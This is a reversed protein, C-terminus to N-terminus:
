DRGLIVPQKRVFVRSIDAGIAYLCPVLVLTLPTAFLIGYGMVLALPSMYIDSGGVGYTLPLLGAVTTISTLVIARLRDSTGRAILDTISKNSSGRRLNNIHSVLVLSDNVVVGSMGIVGMMGLFSPQEGHLMFAIIVGILGFPVAFLVIFPQTFSKFLLVLLFYIGVAALVFGTAINMIATRSEEAEGGTLLKASSYQSTSDSGRGFRSIVLNTAELSTIIDQDLDATITTTREGNYHRFALLGQGTHLKAVAGLKVLRGQNNPISLNKLMAENRRAAQSLQVRIDVDEDDFRVSSVVEGDYAVRVNRAVDAVTLGFRALKEYMIRIEIQDKGIDDNSDIDKVGNITALYSKVEETFRKREDDDHGVVRLTIPKGVDPGGTDVEFVVNEIGDVQEISERLSEIIQDANRERSSYPTLSVGIFGSNETTGWETRGVYGMYSELEYDPLGAVIKEVEEIRDVTAELSSGRPLEVNLYFREAGKSPFLIFDMNKVAHWLLFAFAAIFLVVLIYRYRLMRRLIVYYGKRLRDFWARVSSRQAGNVGGARKEMGRVLHSPLAFLAEGLSFFLALGITLPVVWVVKGIDGSMTFMPVFALFTTLVTTVVPLFVEHTGNIAAQVPTEGRARHQFISESIIVGDDVIIGIVIVMVTLTVTDLFSDFLPLLFCTGMISVPIGLAVWFATRLNLFVTLIILVLVLGIIGNNVVIRFSNEVHKSIDDSFYVTAGEYPLEDVTERQWFFGRYLEILGSIGRHVPADGYQSRSEEALIRRIAKVTRIIDADESKFVGFLIANHGGVRAILDEEEFDDRVVALDRIKILPGEFSSRVIVDGVEMPDTFQALTVLNKESTYSEFTGGTLRINRQGIAQMIEHLSVQYAEMSRPNVEVKIERARYGIRALRAVGPVAELKKELGRAIERLEGYSMDGAIGVALISSTATTDEEIYPSETVEDPFDTIRGVADRINNKVKDTDRVDPDIQVYVNSVNEVSLSYVDKIGSIGQLADEIKNTVNLEVDEPSAGFYETLIDIWGWDVNPFRDRQLTRISNMGLFIIMLTFLTALIHRRTFFEFIKKM